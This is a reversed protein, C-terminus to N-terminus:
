HLVHRHEFAGQHPVSWLDLGMAKAQQQLREAFYHSNSSDVIIKQCKVVALETLSHVSNSSIIVYKFSGAPVKHERGTIQLIAVGDWLWVNCGAAGTFDKNFCYEGIGQALWSARVHFAIISSTLQMSDAMLVSKGHSMHDVVSQNQINYIRIAAEKRIFADQHWQVIALVCALGVGFILSAFQKHNFLIVLSAIMAGLILCEYLSIHIDNIVSFPLGEFFMVIGNMVKITWTLLFGFIQIVPDMFAFAAIALGLVLVVFSIPIVVLNAPLFYNPFQHFYYLGIPLTAIQAAISVSSVKWVEDVIRSQPEWLKYLRPQLYVIGFVALYSLQFGVSMIYYPDFLLLCFMSSALTNFINTSQRWPRSIAVFSFMTVARMVSPSWGSVFAYSWLVFVSLLAIVWKMTRGRDIPKLFLLLIWYIISVHLGSVALVHLAGTAAYAQLLENDLGDTVGLVLATATSREREGDVVARIKESAWLRVKIAYAIFTSPPVYGTHRVREASVVDQIYIGKYAMFQRFDFSGPNAPPEIEKPAGEVLLIDGYAFSISDRLPFYLLVLGQCDKWGSPTKLATIKAVTRVSRARLEPYSSVVARYAQINILHHVPHEMRASPTREFVLMYGLLLVLSLGCWGAALKSKLIVAVIFAILFFASSTLVVEVPLLPAHVALLIGAVMFMTVRVM